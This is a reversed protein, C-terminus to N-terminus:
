TFKKLFEDEDDNKARIVSYKGKMYLSFNYKVPVFELLGSSYIKLYYDDRWLINPFPFSFNIEFNEKSFEVKSDIKATILPTVESFKKKYTNTVSLLQSDKVILKMMPKFRVFSRAFFFIKNVESHAVSAVLRDRNTNVFKEYENFIKKCGREALLTLSPFDRSLIIDKSISIYPSIVEVDKDIKGIVCNKEKDCRHKGIIFPKNLNFRKACPRIYKEGKEYEYPNEITSIFGVDPIVILNKFNSPVSPYSFLIQSM